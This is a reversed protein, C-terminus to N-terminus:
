KNTERIRGSIFTVEVKTSDITGNTIVVTGTMNGTALCSKDLQGYENFIALQNIFTNSGFAVGKELRYLSGKIQPTTKPDSAVYFTGDINFKVGYPAGDNVAKMRALYLSSTVSTTSARLKDKKFLQSINPVALTALIGLIVMVILIEVMTFGRENGFKVAM